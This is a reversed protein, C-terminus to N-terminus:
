PSLEILFAVTSDFFVDYKRVRSVEASVSPKGRKLRIARDFVKFIHEARTNNSLGIKWCKFLFYLSKPVPLYPGRFCLINQKEGDMVAHM